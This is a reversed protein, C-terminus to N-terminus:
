ALDRSKLYVVLAVFLAVPAAVGYGVFAPWGSIHRVLFGFNQGFFGTIVILPLALTAIVTLRQIVVNLRNSVTSLYVDLAGTLLDRYSDILDSVRILHDYIDRFYREAEEDLGPLAHGRTLMQALLDRQPTVARRLNVLQRRMAFIEHMQEEGPAAIMADQIEDIREDFDGLVPFFSDTLSDLLRYLVAIPKEAPVPRREYRARLDENAQSEDKRVTVLYRESYFCHVEVLSDVDPPPAAGYFVIFAYDDYTEIKARQGFNRADELALPHFRFVDRLIAYEEEDPKHIDLWFFEGSELSSEVATRDVAAHHVGDHGPLFMTM